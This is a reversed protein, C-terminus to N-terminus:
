RSYPFSRVKGGARRLDATAPVLSEQTSRPVDAPGHLQATFHAGFLMILNSYYIWALLAIVAGMTGYVRERDFYPILEIVIVSGMEWLLAAVLAGSVAEIWTVKKEPMLKYVCCFVLVALLLSASLLVSKWVLPIYPDKTYAALREQTADSVPSTIAIIALSSLLIIGGSCVVAISRLRSEWFTRRKEVNWARNLANEVVSFVWSSTWMVVVICSLVLTAPPDVIQSLNEVLFKNAVPFLAVIRMVIDKRGGEFKVLIDNAVAILVLTAPFLALSSFYSIAAADRPNRHDMMSRVARGLAALNRRVPSPKDLM